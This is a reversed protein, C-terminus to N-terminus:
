PLKRLLETPAADHLLCGPVVQSCADRFADIFQQMLPSIARDGSTFLGWFYPIKVTLPLLRVNSVPIGYATVPDVIAIGLGARAAMVANLSTNTSFETPPKIKQKRFAADIASRLRYANGVTVLRRTHLSALDLQRSDTLEDDEAVVAFCNSECIVQMKLGAHDLPFGSIGFDATRTRLSRIVHEADATQANIIDPLDDSMRALAASVLGASMTPTAAIDLAPPKGARIAAARSRIQRLGAMHRAAEEHFAIGRETPSIRPGNRHFLRFGIAEELDRVLRTVAPQSCGMQRAAGTMSGCSMAALFAEIARIDLIENDSRSM